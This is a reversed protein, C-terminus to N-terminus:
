SEIEGALDRSLNLVQMLTTEADNRDSHREPHAVENRREKLYGLLRLEKPRGEGSFENSLEDLVSGWTGKEVTNGTESEYWKRLLSEVSRLAIFEASTYSGTLVGWCAENLDRKEDELGEFIGEEVFEEVGGVLRESDLRSTDPSLVKLRKLGDEFRTRWREVFSRLDKCEDALLLGSRNNELRQKWREAEMSIERFGSVDRLRSIKRVEPQIDEILCLSPSDVEAELRELAVGFSYVGYSTIKDSM